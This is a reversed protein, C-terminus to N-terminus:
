LTKVWWGDGAGRISQIRIKMNTSELNNLNEQIMDINKHKRKVKIEVTYHQNQVGVKQWNVIQECYKVNIMTWGNTFLCYKLM